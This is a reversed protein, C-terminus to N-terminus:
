GNCCASRIPSPFLRSRAYINTNSKIKQFHWSSSMQKGVALSEFARFERGPWRKNASFSRSKIIRRLPRKRKDFVKKTDLKENEILGTLNTLSSSNELPLFHAPFLRLSFNCFHMRLHANGESRILPM